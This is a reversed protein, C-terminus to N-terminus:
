IPALDMKMAVADRVTLEIIELSSLLDAERLYGSGFAGLGCVNPGDALMMQLSLTAERNRHHKSRSPDSFVLVKDAGATEAARGSCRRRMPYPELPILDSSLVLGPKALGTYSRGCRLCSADAGFTVTFYLSIDALRCSCNVELTSLCLHADTTDLKKRM